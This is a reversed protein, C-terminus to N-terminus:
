LFASKDFSPMIRSEAYASKDRVGSLDAYREFHSGTFERDMWRDFAYHMFLNALIPSIPSGLSCHWTIRLTPRGPRTLAPAPASRQAYRTPSGSRRNPM